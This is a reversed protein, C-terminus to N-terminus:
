DLLSEWWKFTYHMFVYLPGYIPLLIFFLIKKIISPM